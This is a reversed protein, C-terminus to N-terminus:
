LRLRARPCDDIARRPPRAGRARFRHGLRERVGSSDPIAPAGRLGKRPCLAASGKGATQTTRPKPARTVAHGDHSRWAYTGTTRLGHLVSVATCARTDLLTSETRRASGCAGRAGLSM